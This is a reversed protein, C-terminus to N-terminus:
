QQSFYRNVLLQRLEALQQQTIRGEQAYQAQLWDSYQVALQETFSRQMLMANIGDTLSRRVVDYDTAQSSLHVAWGKSTSSSGTSSIGGGAGSVGGRHVSVPLPVTYEQRYHGGEGMQRLAAGPIVHELETGLAKGSQKKANSSNYPLVGPANSGVTDSFLGGLTRDYGCVEGKVCSNDGCSVCRQITRRMMPQVPATKGSCRACRCGSGRCVGAARTDVPSWAKPQATGVAGGRVILSSPRYVPPAGM